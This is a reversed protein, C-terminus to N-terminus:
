SPPLALAVRERHHVHNEISSGIEAIAVLIDLSMPPTLFFPCLFISQSRKASGQVIFRRSADLVCRFNPNIKRERHGAAPRLTLGLSRLSKSKRQPIMLFPQRLLKKWCVGFKRGGTFLRDVKELSIGCEMYRPSDPPVHRLLARVFMGAESPSGGYAVM